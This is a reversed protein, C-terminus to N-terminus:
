PLAAVGTPQCRDRDIVQLSLGCAGAPVQRDLTFSGSGDATVVAAVAPEGLGLRLGACPGSPVYYTGETASRLVLLAGGPTAGTVTVSVTGPCTGAVSLVPPPVPGQPIALVAASALVAQVIGRSLAFDNASRGVIDDPSHIYPSYDGTDEFFFVAPFGDQFFPQHDSTGAFLRGERTPLGPVYLHAIEQVLDTLWGTANDTVMDLDLADGAVRYANMDTNLMAVVEVGQSRMLASYADSGFLGFEESAFAIFRLTYRFSAGQEGLIRAIELLAATGSANDDAGPATGGYSTSDYHAGVIVVKEPELAGPIEAVVNDANGDFDHLSTALGLGAFRSVLWQQADRGGQTDSRRTAFLTSLSTVDAELLTASVADVWGQITPDYEPLASWRDPVPAGPRLRRGPVAALGGHFLGPPAWGALERAWAGAAWPLAVVARLDDRHLLRAGAPLERAGTDPALAVVFLREEPRFLGLRFARPDVRRLEALAEDGGVVLTLGGYTGRVDLREALSEVLTEGPVTSGLWWPGEPTGIPGAAVPAAPPLQLLLSLVFAAALSLSAARRPM